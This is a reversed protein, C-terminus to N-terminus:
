KKIYIFYSSMAKEVVLWSLNYESGLARCTDEWYGWTCYKDNEPMVKKLGLAHKAKSCICPSIVKGFENFHSM